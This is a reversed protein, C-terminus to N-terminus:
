PQRAPEGLRHRLQQNQERLADMARQRELIERGETAAVILFVIFLGIMIACMGLDNSDPAPPLWRPWRSKRAMHELLRQSEVVAEVDDEVNDIPAKAM